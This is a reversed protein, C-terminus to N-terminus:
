WWIEMMPLQSQCKWYLDSFLYKFTCYGYSYELFVQSKTLIWLFEMTLQGWRSLSSSECWVKVADHIAIMDWSNWLKEQLSLFTSFLKIWHSCCFTISTNNQYSSTEVHMKLIKLYSSYDFFPLDLFHSTKTYSTQRFILSAISCHSWAKDM